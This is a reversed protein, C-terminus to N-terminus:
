RSTATTAARQVHIPECLGQMAAFNRLRELITRTVVQGAGVLVTGEKTLISKSTVHGERVAGLPLAESVDPEAMPAETTCDLTRTVAAVLALDYKDPQRALDALAAALTRGETCATLADNLVHLLRTSPCPEAACPRGLRRVIAAVPELRPINNLLQFGVEPIRDLMRLEAPTLSAGQRARAMVVPPIAVSGIPALMAATELAWMSDPAVLSSCQRVLNRLRTCRGFSREDLMSLIETLAHICGALTNALIEQEATILEHQRLAADIATTLKDKSCPKCVFRFVSGQNIAEVATAQDANGTLMLRVASPAIARAATLFAIGDMGPMRMDSVVVEIEPLKRLVQLGDAGSNATHIRYLGHLSRTIGALLHVDDDVLLIDKM